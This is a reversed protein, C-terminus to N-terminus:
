ATATLGCPAPIEFQVVIQASSPGCACRITTYEDADSCRVASKAADPHAPDNDRRGTACAEALDARM